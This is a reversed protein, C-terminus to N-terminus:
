SGVGSDSSLLWIVSLVSMYPYYFGHINGGWGTKEIKKYLNHLTLRILQSMLHIVMSYTM